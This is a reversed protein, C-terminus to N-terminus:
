KNIGPNKIKQYCKAAEINHMAQDHPSDLKKDVVSAKIYTEAAEKGAIIFFVNYFATLNHYELYLIDGIKM